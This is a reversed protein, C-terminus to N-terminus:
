QILGAMQLAPVILVNWAHEDRGPHVYGESGPSLEWYEKPSGHDLERRTLDELAQRYIPQPDIGYALALEISAFLPWHGGNQYDGPERLTPCAYNGPWAFSGDAEAINKIGALSEGTLNRLRVGATELRHDVTALVVADSLMGEGFLYRHLFEPLLASNDQLRSGADWKSLTVFGLGSHYSDRYGRVAQAVQDEDIGALEMDALFRMAIALLGQNYTIVDPRKLEWCDAWYRFQGPALVYLGDQLHSQVFQWARGVAERDVPRGEREMIGSWILFLLTTEDDQPQLSDDDPDFAVATAVQGTLPDQAAEFWRYAQESLAIDGLGLTTYFADRGYIGNAYAPSPVVAQSQGVTLVNARATEVYRQIREQM